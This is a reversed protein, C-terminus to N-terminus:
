DLKASTKGKVTCHARIKALAADGIGSVAVLGDVRAFPGHQKRHDIIARARAPGVGPLLELEEATATNVNVVGVLRTEPNQAVMFMDDSTNRYSGSLGLHLLTQGEDEYVPLGTVRGTVAYEGTGISDGPGMAGSVEERNIAIEIRTLSLPRM